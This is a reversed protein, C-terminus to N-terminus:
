PKEETKSKLDQATTEPLVCFCRKQRIVESSGKRVFHGKLIDLQLYLAFVSICCNM